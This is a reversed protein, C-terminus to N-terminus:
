REIPWKFPCSGWKACEHDRGSALGNDVILDAFCLRKGMIDIPNRIRSNHHSVFETVYHQLHKESMKHFAGKHTRKFMAWFSEIGNTHVHEHASHKVSEHNALDKYARNENTYIISGEVRNSKVFGQLALKKVNSVVEATISNNKRDNMGIVATKGVVGRDTLRERKGKPRNKREGGIYTEDVEVPGDCLEMESQMAERIWHLMFGASNQTIGIDRHLKMSSVGKLSTVCLYIAIVWKRIPIKSRELVTGTRVSFCHRCSKCWDPMDGSTKSTEVGGYRPCFRGTEGWRKKVFWAHAASEDPVMDMLEILTHGKCFSKGSAKKVCLKNRTM